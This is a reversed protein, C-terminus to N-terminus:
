FQEHPPFSSSLHTKISLWDIPNITALALFHTSSIKQCVKLIVPPFPFSFVVALYPGWGLLAGQQNLGQLYVKGASSYEPLLNPWVHLEVFYNNLSPGPPPLHVQFSSDPTSVMLQQSIICKIQRVSHSTSEM